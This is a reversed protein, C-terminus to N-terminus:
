LRASFAAKTGVRCCHPSIGKKQTVDFYLASSDLSVFHQMIYPFWVLSFM